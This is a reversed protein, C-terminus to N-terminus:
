LRIVADCGAAFDADHSVTVVICGRSAMRRLYDYVLTASEKDLASTPEDAILIPRSLLGCVSLLVRQREGGSLEAVRKDYLATDLGLRGWEEMLRIKSFAVGRNVKLGLLMGVLDRVQEAPITQEQPLYSMIKRFECASSPTLLEGDISIVGDNLPMFGLIARLVSTKGSGSPGTICLMKGEEVAFSLGSFLVRDDIQLSANKVELM